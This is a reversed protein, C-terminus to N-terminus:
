RIRGTVICSAIGSNALDTVIQVEQAVSDASGNGRFRMKVFHVKKKGAGVEFEIRPDECLVNRVEFPEESKVILRQEKIGEATVDGLSVAAPSVSVLPESRGFLLMETTPFNPDNSILTIRERMEGDPMAGELRVSMRYEVKRSSREVSLLRVKLQRCHSRVDTIEWNPNGVHTITVEREPTEGSQFEGFNMEPPDFSIDTRIYGSVKLKVEAFSPRDFTVTVTASKQGIFSDTNLAAIIEGTEHTRLTRKNITPTTCGCSTRVSAIHVDQEYPNTIEFRYESKAGRGVSRFDHSRVPFMKEAWNEAIATTPSTALCFLLVCLIQAPLRHRSLPSTIRVKEQLM